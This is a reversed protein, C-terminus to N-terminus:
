PLVMAIWDRLYCVLSLTHIRIHSQPTSREFNSFPRCRARPMTSYTARLSRNHGM